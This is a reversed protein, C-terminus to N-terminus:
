REPARRMLDLCLAATWSFSTAGGGEGTLPHYHERIGHKEVLELTRDRLWRAHACQGHHELGRIALWNVSAWSPGRWYLRPAFSADDPPVTPLPAATRYAASLRAAIRDVQEGSLASSYVPLLEWCGTVGTHSGRRRDFDRFGAPTTLRERLAGELVAMRRSSDGPERGLETALARLDQEARHLIATIVVDEILFPSGAVVAADDFGAQEIRRVLDM